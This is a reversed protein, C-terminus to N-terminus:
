RSAGLESELKSIAASEILNAQEKLEFAETVPQGIKRKIDRAADPVFIQRVHEEAIEGIVGGYTKAILQYYGYPNMLFAALYGDDSPEHPIIRLIHQTAAWQDWAKPVLSVRGITGSCTVLVTGQRIIWKDIKKTAKKSIYKIDFPKIEVIHKGQLFPIGQPKEVYTRAFRPPIYAEGLKSMTTVPFRGAKMKHAITRILPNHFAADLRFNLEASKVAFINPKDKSIEEPSLPPLGLEDELSVQSNDLLQNAQDRLSNAKIIQAHMEEQFQDSLLPVPISSVHESELHKVTAGYQDKTLLTQGIWSSLYTLLYGIKSGDRPVLRMLDHTFAFKTLREGVYAVRGVTGSCTMIAWGKQLSYQQLNETRNKALFREPIPKFFLSQSASLYPAGSGQDSYIRKFRTLNFVQAVFQDLRKQPTSELLHRAAFVEKTYYSADLRMRSSILWKSSVISNLVDEVHLMVESRTMCGKGAVM